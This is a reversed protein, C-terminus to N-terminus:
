SAIEGRKVGVISSGILRRLTKGGRRKVGKGWLSSFPFYFIVSQPIIRSRRSSSWVPFIFLSPLIVPHTCIFLLCGFLGLQHLLCCCCLLTIKRRVVQKKRHAPGPSPPLLPDAMHLTVGWGTRPMVFVCKRERVCIYGARSLFGSLVSFFM